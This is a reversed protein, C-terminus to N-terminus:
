AAFIAMGNIKIKSRRQGHLLFNTGYWKKVSGVLLHGESTLCRPFCRNSICDVSILKFCSESASLALWIQNTKTTIIINFKNRTM